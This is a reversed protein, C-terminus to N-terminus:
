YMKPMHLLHLVHHVKIEFIFSNTKQKQHSASSLFDIVQPWPLIGCADWQVCKKIKLCQWKRRERGDSEGSKTEM